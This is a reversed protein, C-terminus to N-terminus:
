FRLTITAGTQYVEGEAEFDGVSDWLRRKVFRRKELLHAQFFVDFSVPRPLIESLGKLEVGLGASAVHANSDIFNMVGGQRPVATPRYSYGGRVILDVHETTLPVGECGIAPVFTDHLDPDDLPITPTTPFLDGLGGVLELTTYPTPNKMESWQFWTGDAAVLVRDTIKWSVGLAVQRPSFHSFSTTMLTLVTKEIIPIPNEDFIRLEPITIKNPLSLKVQVEERYTVGIRLSRHPVFMMAYLPSIVSGIESKLSGRSPDQESIQFDVGGSNDGIYNIGGGVMWWPFIAFGTSAYVALAHNDNYYLTFRPNSNPLMLFRLVHQDPFFLTVASTWRHGFVVLSSTFSFYAGRNDDVGNDRGNIRLNPTAYFYGGTITLRPIQALGAPNYYAAAGDDAVGTFAGSMAIPRAGVGFVDFPNASAAIPLAVLALVLSITLRRTM